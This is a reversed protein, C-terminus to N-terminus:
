IQIRNRGESKAAYLRRDACVILEDFSGGDLPYAAIGASLTVHLPPGEGGSHDIKAFESTIRLLIERASLTWEGYFAVVFEEGGWRSRLDETRLRSSLLNGLNALVRDGTSHGRTDNVVKFHDVDILCVSLLKNCRRAEALRGSFADIFARRTLLGTLLDQSSDEQFSRSRKVGSAILAMLETEPLTSDFVEDAGAEIAATLFEPSRQPARLIVKLWKWSPDARLVRCLDTASLGGVAADMVLVDPRSRAVTQLMLEPEKISEATFGAHYFAGLIGETDGDLLTLVRAPEDGNRAALSAIMSLAADPPVNQRIYLQVGARAACLRNAFDETLGIVALPSRGGIGKALMPMDRSLSRGAHELYVVVDFDRQALEVVASVVDECIVLDVRKRRAADVMRERHAPEGGVALARTTKFTGIWDSQRQKNAIECAVLAARCAATAQRWVSERARLEGQRVAELVQCVHWLATAVESLGEREATLHITHALSSVTDLSAFDDDKALHDLGIGLQQIGTHISPTPAPQTVTM